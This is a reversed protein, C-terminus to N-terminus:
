KADWAGLRHKLTNLGELHNLATRLQHVGAPIHKLFYSTASAAGLRGFAGLAQSLREVAAIWFLDRVPQSDPILRLYYELLEDRLDEALNVYPDCLLSAIDYAATGFRMGQFDILRIRGDRVLVNSSQLDRHIIVRAARLQAPILGALEKRIEALETEGVMLHQQLFQRCFLDQEWLYLARTFPPALTLRQRLAARTARGHLRAIADLTQKYLALCPARSLSPALQELSEGGVDEMICVDKDPWDLLVKPVGVGHRALFRAHGTYLGNEPRELSYRILIASRTKSSLRTFTRASGRPALPNVCTDAPDWKLQRLVSTVIPDPLADAKVAIHSVHGRATVGEAVIANEVRAGAKVIVDDWLVANEVRASAPIVVNNGCAVKGRFHKWHPLDLLERHSALYAAHSGIDAWYANPVIVGSITEGDVLANEYADVISAFGADPLYHLIRPSLLQLGCFTATGETKAMPSRFVTIKGDHCEVTRPGREPHLWLSAIASQREFARVLPTADLDAMVDANLMWFPTDDLFWRARPLVGGTGLIDPEFSVQIRLGHVPNSKLYDLVQGALHHVNVLVDRVGWQHLLRLSHGLVPTGWIPFLPKPKLLTLPLLRAGYGAALVVAKRPLKM